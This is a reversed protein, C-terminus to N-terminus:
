VTRRLRDSKIRNSERETNAQSRISREETQRVSGYHERRNTQNLKTTRKQKGSQVM